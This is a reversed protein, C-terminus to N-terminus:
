NWFCYLAIRVSFILEVLCQYFHFRHSLGNQGLLLLFYEMKKANLRCRTKYVFLFLVKKGVDKCNTKLHFAIIDNIFDLNVLENSMHFNSQIPLRKFINEILLLQFVSCLQTCVCSTHSHFLIYECVRQLLIEKFFYVYM